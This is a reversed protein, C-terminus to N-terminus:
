VSQYEAAGQTLGRAANTQEKAQAFDVWAADNQRPDDAHHPRFTPPLSDPLIDESVTKIHFSVVKQTVM